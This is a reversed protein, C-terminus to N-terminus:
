GKKVIKKAIPATQETASPTTTTDTWGAIEELYWEAFGRDTVEDNDMAERGGRDKVTTATWRDGARKALRIITQMNHGMRKQGRPKVQQGGYLAKTEKDELDRGKVQGSSVDDQEATVILHCPPTVLFKMVKGKYQANIVPWDVWGDLAGLAKESEAARRKEMRVQMFYDEMSTGFVQETFWAQVDSWLASGSDICCWDDPGAQEAVLEIASTNAVWGDAHYVVVNGGDVAWRDDEQWRKGDWRWETAVQVTEGAATQGELMRDWANDNDIVYLTHDPAIRSAVDLAAQSKGVGEMGYVLIREKSRGTSRLTM